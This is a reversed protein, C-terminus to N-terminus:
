KGAGLQSALQCAQALPRCSFDDLPRAGPVRYQRRRRAPAGAGGPGPRAAARRRAHHGYVSCGTTYLFLRPCGGARAPLQRLAEFLLRDTGVPDEFDMVTSIFVDCAALAARYTDRQRLDGAVVQIELAQLSHAREAHPRRLLATVHHGAQRLAGAVAHGAYGSAGAILINM